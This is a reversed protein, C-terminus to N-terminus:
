GCHGPPVFLLIQPAVPQRAESGHRHLHHLLDKQYGNGLMHLVLLHSPTTLM